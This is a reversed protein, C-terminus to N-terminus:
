GIRLNFNTKLYEDNDIYKARLYILHDRIEYIEKIYNIEKQCEYPIVFVSKQLKHFGLKRLLRRLAERAIKQEEPIDFVVVRWWGDWQRSQKITMKELDYKLIEKRGKETIELIDYNDKKTLRIIKQERLKQIVKWSQRKGLKKIKQDKNRFIELIQLSNPAILAVALVVGLALSKLITLALDKQEHSLYFKKKKM